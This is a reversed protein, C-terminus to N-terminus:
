GKRKNLIQAMKLSSKLSSKLVERSEDDLINGDITLTSQSNELYELIIKMQKSIDLPDSENREKHTQFNTNGMLYDVSVGFYDALVKLKDIPPVIKGREYEGYTSRRINLLKAMDEQTRDKEKRLTKLRASFIDMNESGKV